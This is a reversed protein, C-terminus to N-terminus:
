PLLSEEASTINKKRSLTIAWLIVAWLPWLVLVTMAWLPHGTNDWIKGSIIPSPVDGFIHSVVICFAMSHPQSAKEVMSLILMNVPTTASFTLFIGFGFLVIFGKFPINLWFAMMMIAFAVLTYGICVKLCISCKNIVDRKSQIHPINRTLHHLLVGGSFTGLTGFLAVTVGIISNGKALDIEFASQVYSPIWFLLSGTSFITAAYGLSMLWWSGNSLVHGIRRLSEYSPCFSDRKSKMYVIMNGERSFGVGSNKNEMKYQYAMICFALFCPIMFIAEALFLDRWKEGAIGSFVNGLALGANMTTLFLSLSVSNHEGFVNQILTPAITQLSAEATGSIVRAVLLMNINTTQSALLAALIWIFMGVSLLIFCNIVESYLVFVISFMVYCIMFSTGLVGDFFRSDGYEQDLVPIIGSLAGRDIYNLLNCYCLILLLLYGREIKGHVLM